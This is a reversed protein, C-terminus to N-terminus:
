ENDDNVEELVGEDIYKKVGKEYAEALTPNKDLQKHLQQLRKLAENYNNVVKCAFNAIFTNSERKSHKKPAPDKKERSKSM